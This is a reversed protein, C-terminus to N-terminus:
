LQVRRYAVIDLRRPGPPSGAIAHHWNQRSALGVYVRGDRLRYELRDEPGVPCIGGGWPTWGQITAIQAKIEDVRATAKPLEVARLVPAAIMDAYIVEREARELLAQLDALSPALDPM